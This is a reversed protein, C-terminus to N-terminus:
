CICVPGEVIVPYSQDM